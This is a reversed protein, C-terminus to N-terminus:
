RVRWVRRGFQWVIGHAKQVCVGLRSGPEIREGLFTSAVGFHKRQGLRYRVAEVAAKIM